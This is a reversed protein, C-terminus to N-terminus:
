RKTFANKYISIWREPTYKKALKAILEYPIDDMKKFRICSKGMDLKYKAYKPYQTQFWVLTKEDAYIGMHYVAVFNKQSAISIFPLPSGPSCHYGQPFTKLPVDFSLFGKNINSEFGEPLNTNITEYLTKVPARREEPLNTVYTELEKNTIM